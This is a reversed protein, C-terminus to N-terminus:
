RYNRIVLEAREGRGEASQSITQKTTIPTLNYDTHNFLRRTLETDAHTLMFRAGAEHIQKCHLSLMIFDVRSWVKGSYGVFSDEEHNLYPPDLFFFISAPNIVNLSIYLQEELFINYPQASFSATALAQAAAHLEVTLESLKPKWTADKNPAVNFEGRENERYLGNFGCKNLYHFIGAHTIAMSTPFRRLDEVFPKLSNLLARAQKYKVADHHAALRAACEAVGEPRASLTRYYSMLHANSDNAYIRFTKRLGPIWRSEIHMLMSAGGVFPEAYHHIEAAPPLLPDLLPLVRTKGGVWKLPPKAM